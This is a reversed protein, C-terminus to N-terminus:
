AGALKQYLGPRAPLAAAGDHGSRRLHPGGGLEHRRQVHTHPHSHRNGDTYATAPRPAAHSNAHGGAPRNAYHQPAIGGGVIQLPFRGAFEEAPRRDLLVIDVRGTRLDRIASFFDTYLFLQSAPLGRAALAEEVWPQYVSGALTAIRTNAPLDDLTAIDSLEFDMRALLADQGAYYVPTFDVRAQREPTLSIASIAADIQGQVLAGPLAEFPIDKFTVALGLRRALLIMLEIDFGAVDFSANYYEFPPYDVSVGVIIEGAQQIRQWDSAPDPPTQTRAPPPTAAPPANQALLPVPWLLLFAIGIFLLVSAIVPLLRRQVPSPSIPM